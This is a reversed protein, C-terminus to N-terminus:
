QLYERIAKVIDDVATNAKVFYEAAGLSIATSTESDLNSLVLVPIDSLKPDEKLKRLVDIGSYGSPLMLDLLVLDPHHMTAMHLGQQGNIALLIDVGENKLLDQYLLQLQLDDEIILIKKM